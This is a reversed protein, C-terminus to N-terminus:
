MAQKAPPPQNFMPETATKVPPHAKEIIRHIRMGFTQHEVASNVRLVNSILGAIYHLQYGDHTSEIIALSNMYNRKNGKYKGCKFGEEEMCSYLSGSKFYVASDRLAPASAYRIRRETMYLLRKIERSSFEDVLRGQEMRLTLKVLERATGYSNGGGAVKKKGVHTFFSGQRIQNIDLGNRTIPDFFTRQFLDTLEKGPTEKFFRQIEAEPPPYDKGYQQLLMAERMTMAAASNSSVSLTWDLFEWLTGQEGVPMTRRALTRTEVNFVRIKHHDSISFDDATVITNKLIDRRKELDEPWTDALAQFLGLAVILKGVSGTNQRYDGRHEGYVPREPDSIDLVAIGYNAASSGLMKVLQKSFVPDPAPLDMAQYDLLRLGVEDTSLLAGAPQKRGPVIGENALRAGEVRRIGTEKYGDLPYAGALTPLLLSMLFAVTFRNM